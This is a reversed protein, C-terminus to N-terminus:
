QRYRDVSHSNPFSPFDTDFLVILISKKLNFKCMLTDWIKFYLYHINTSKIKFSKITTIAAPVM